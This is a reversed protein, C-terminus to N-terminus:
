YPCVLVCIKANPTATTNFYGSYPAPCTGVCTRSLDYAYGHACVEECKGTNSNAFYDTPCVM